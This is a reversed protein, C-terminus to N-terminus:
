SDCVDKPYQPEKSLWPQEVYSLTCTKGTTTEYRFIHKTGAVVQTHHSIIKKVSGESNQQARIANLKPLYDAENVVQEEPCGACIGKDDAPAASVCVVLAVALVLVKYMKRFLLYDKRWVFTGVWHWASWVQGYM